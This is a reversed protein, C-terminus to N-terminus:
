DPVSRFPPPDRRRAPSRLRRRDRHRGPGCNRRISGCTSCCAAASRPGGRAPDGATATADFLHPMAQMARQHVSRWLKKVGHLSVGLEDGIQEDTLQTVALRLMRREAASFGFRPPTFQFADRVPSGPLLVAAEDRSLGFLEPVGAQERRTRPRFGMSQLYAAHGDLGEQYLSQLRFGAHAHRFLTMAVGLIEIADPDAFDTHSQEYHLVLFSVEGRGSQRALEKDSPPQYRGEALAAYLLAPAFPPPDEALRRSWDDDLAIAVGLGVLRQGPPRQLDEIVDANFGSHGLLRTWVAPLAGRLSPALPLWAPVLSVAEALDAHGLLRGHLRQGSGDLM